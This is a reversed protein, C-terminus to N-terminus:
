SLKHKQYDFLGQENECLIKLIVDAQCFSM